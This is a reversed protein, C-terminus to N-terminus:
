PDKAKSGKSPCYEGICGLAKGWIVMRKYDWMLLQSERETLIAGLSYELSYVGEAKVINGLHVLDSLVEFM